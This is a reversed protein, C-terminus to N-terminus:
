KRGAFFKLIVILHKLINMKKFKKDFASETWCYNNLMRDSILDSKSHCDIAGDFYQKAFIVLSFIILILASFRYHLRFAHTDIICRQPEFLPRLNFFLNM